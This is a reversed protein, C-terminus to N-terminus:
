YAGKGSIVAAPTRAVIALDMGPSWQEVYHTDLRASEDCDLDSRGSVQWLGTLGPRVRLRRYSDLPYNAVEDPVPPRPGVISMEGRLINVLQPLEDLSYKRMFRGLVTVRPDDVMKFLTAAQHRNEAELEARRQEADQHMTRFKLMDFERGGRGVRVQRFIAPGPSTARVAIATVIMVPALLVLAVAAIVKDIVVKSVGFEAGADRADFSLLPTGTHAITRVRPASLDAVIPAM